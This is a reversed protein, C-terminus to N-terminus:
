KRELAFGFAYVNGDSAGVYVQSNSTWLSRGAVSAPITQGSNWVDKGNTANLAYLVAPSRGSSIAFAVNNVVLPTIPSQLDRSLWAPQLSLRGGDTAIKFAAIAGNTVPSGAATFQADAALRGTVPALLWMTGGVMSPAQPAAPDGAPANPAPTFEQWFALAGAGITAGAAVLPRSAFLPTGHNAGGLSTADFLLIRGDKTAAAVIDKDDHRFVLPGSIFQASADTYWDKLQLTKPDLAVIANSYGAGGATQGPGIAAIVTGSATLAVSGVASGGGTKWSVVPKADSSLDIAWVANPAGGCGAVTSTYITDNVAIPDSWRAGAPLFPAPKQIDKASPLGVTHLVGDSAILYVVGSPRGFGGGGGGGPAGARGGPAAGGPAAGQAGAGAAANPDAAARGRGRGAQGAPAAPAGAPEAVAVGAAGPAGPAGAGGRGGGGARPPPAPVGEGPASVNSSYGGRGGGGRGGPAPAPPPQVLAAMRSAAATLTAPCGASNTPATGFSRYWFTKGTDNDIAIADNARGTIISLPTFLTVGNVTVGQADINMRRPAGDLPSKWQLEFGPKSLNDVSINPDSRMWSTRQADGQATPWEGGINRGQAFAIAGALAAMVITTSFRRTHM